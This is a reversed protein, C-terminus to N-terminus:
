IATLQIHQVWSFQPYGYNRHRPLGQQHCNDTNSILVPQIELDMNIHLSIYQPSHESSASPILNFDSLRGAVPFQASTESVHM